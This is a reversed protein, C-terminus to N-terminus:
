FNFNLKNIKENRAFYKNCISCFVNEKRMKKQVDDDNDNKMVDNSESM